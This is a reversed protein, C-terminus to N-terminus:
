GLDASCPLSVRFVCGTPQDEVAITGRHAEIALRCFALGLGHSPRAAVGQQVQFYKEFVADRQEAPIGKGQDIVRLIEHDGEASLEVRVTSDRPAYKQANDILNSVVRELIKADADVCHGPQAVVLELTQGREVSAARARDIAVQAVVALEVVSTRDVILAGDEARSVDLLDNVMGALQASAGVIDSAAARQDATLSPDEFLWTANVSVATLPSKLDHVLMATLDQQSQNSETVSVRLDAALRQEELLQLVARRLELQTAIHAAAIVLLRRQTANLRSPKSDFVCLTGLAVGARNILAVGAYFRVFPAAVVLTSQAFRPDLLTDPVELVDAQLMTHPCFAHDRPIERALPGHVAKVWQRESDLLTMAGIETGCVKAILRAYDDFEGEAPTDLIRYTLLAQVRESEINAPIAGM